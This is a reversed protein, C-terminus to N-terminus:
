FWTDNFAQFARSIEEFDRYDQLTWGERASLIVLIYPSPAQIIAMDHWAHPRTWGTKSAVPYDSVIFPYQNNLLHALFEESYTGGSQTYHFIQRAFTGADTVTLQSNFINYRVHHPNAGISYIFRRYGEIGHVRRVMNTAINESYSLNLRLLERQTFQTGM